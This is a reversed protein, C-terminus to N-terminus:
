KINGIEDIDMGFFEITNFGASSHALLQERISILFNYYEKHSVKKDGLTYSIQPNSIIDDIQADINDIRTETTM